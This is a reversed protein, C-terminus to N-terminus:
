GVDAAFFDQREAMGIAVLCAPNVAVQFTDTPRDAAAIRHDGGDGDGVAYFQYRAVGGM